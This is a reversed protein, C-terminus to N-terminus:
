MVRHPVGRICSEDTTNLKAANHQSKHNHAKCAYQLSELALFVGVCLWTVTPRRVAPTSYARGRPTPQRPVKPRLQCRAVQKLWCMTGMVWTREQM